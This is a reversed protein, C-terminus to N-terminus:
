TEPLLVHGQISLYKSLPALRQTGHALAQAVQEIILVLQVDHLLKANLLM